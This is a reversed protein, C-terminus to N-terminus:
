CWWILPKILRYDLNNTDIEQGDVFRIVGNRISAIKKGLLNSLTEAIDINEYINDLNVTVKNEQIDVELSRALKEDRLFVYQEYPSKNANFLNYNENNYIAERLTDEYQELYYYKFIGGGKWNVISSIGTNDGNLVNKMRILTKEEFYDGFEVAIWKKGLKHSVAPTTGSGSFFDLVYENRNKDTSMEIIRKILKEPKKGNKLHVGGENAIGAWSIDDWFDTLIETPGIAGDVEKVKKSYFTLSGGKYILLDNKDKREVRIIHDINKSKKLLEKVKESPKHPDRKSVIYDANELAFQAIGIDRIVKWNEGWQKKADANNKIGNIEYFKDIISVLKWEEPNETKNEIYLNYNSDYDVLTYMKNFSFKKRDKTVFMLYETVDVPGPNNTKFGAPSSTKISILQVFNEEGFIHELLYKLNHVEKYDIQCFLAGDDALLDKALELRNQMMTLWSSHKMKDKYIFEDEETNYPPDIYITKITGEYKKKLTNLAQYNDSKILVGNIYEDINEIKSVIEDKLDSFYKTDIPLYLFKEKETEEKTINDKIYGLEKWEEQQLNINEHNFVKSVLENDLDKLNKLSIVYNSNLVFKPKNWIKVLEDEFQAIFDIIKYAINKITNIQKIRRTTFSNIVEKFMYQYLWLDFQEKLFANANKNIFFDVESQSKFAKIAKEVVEMNIDLGSKKIKKLIDEKNTKKGRKSYEVTLEVVPEDKNKLNVNKYEFVLEKKENNKSHELNKTDIFFIIGDIDIKVSKYLIESKVYYLMQSKWFLIVDKNDTYIKEYVNKFLPSYNFYISGAETFYRNFFTYLKDFLEERFEPYEQIETEIDNILYQKIDNFYNSKIRALNVYGSKGEIKAGIFINELANFFKQEMNNSM